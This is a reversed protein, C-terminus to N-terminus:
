NSKLQNKFTQKTNKADFKTVKETNLSNQKLILILGTLLKLYNETMNLLM